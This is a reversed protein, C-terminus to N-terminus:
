CCNLIRFPVRVGVGEYVEDGEGSGQEGGELM